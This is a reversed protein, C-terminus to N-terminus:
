FRMGIGVGVVWPDVDVDVILPGPNTDLVATTDIDIYKLDLNVFLNDSIDYDMGAQLAWGLGNETSVHVGQNLTAELSDTADDDTFFTYNIGAGVYPRFNKDPRFHYQLSITPPIVWADFLEDGDQLGLGTLTTGPGTVSVTHKAAGAIAEIGIHKTVMYTVDLELTASSDVEVGSGSLPTTGASILGSQDDPIVGLVRMRVIWDGKEAYAYSSFYNSSILIIILFIQKKYLKM